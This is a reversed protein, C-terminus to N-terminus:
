RRTRATIPRPGTRAVGPVVEVPVASEAAAQAQARLRPEPEVAIVRRVEAPYHVFNVGHGAGVEVVEGSLGALLERRRETMGGRDMGAAMKPYMRGFLPRRRDVQKSTKAASM